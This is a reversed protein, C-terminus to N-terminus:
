RSAILRCGLRRALGEAGNQMIWDHNARLVPAGARGLANMWGITTRVKWDFVATTTGEGEYFRWTGTGELDGSATGELLFPEEVRTSTIEFTVTYPLRARWEYIGRQGIGSEDGDALRETREVGRWWEPWTESEYIADWVPRRESALVWTTSFRYEAM